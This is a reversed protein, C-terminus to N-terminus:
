GAEPSLTQLHQRRWCLHLQFVFVHVMTDTILGNYYGVTRLSFDRADLMKSFIVSVSCYKLM